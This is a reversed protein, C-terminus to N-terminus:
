KEQLGRILVEAVEPRSFEKPLPEGNRLKERV